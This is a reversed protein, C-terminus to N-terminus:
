DTQHYKFILVKLGKGPMAEKYVEPPTISEIYECSPCQTEIMQHIFDESLDPSNLCLMLLGQDNMLQPLRRIIKPYDRKIDVSGKQFSPPDSILLDYPGHKKLRGYSKFIDVGEFKVKNLEHKNLRHNDRGKALPAKSIDVNVVQKANGAIAAISFPCTYAFLNLVNKNDSHEKVWQRGNRMDLFIGYNQAQGLQVHYKLGHEIAILNSVDDGRLLETPAKDRCRFQVQVSKCEPLNQMLLEAQTALWTADEEKYLTILAVPPMWDVCVHELGPYAHGRGHFLRRSELLDDQSYQEFPIHEIM